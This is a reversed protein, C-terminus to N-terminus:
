LVSTRKSKCLTHSFSKVYLSGSVDVGHPSRIDTGRPRRPQSPPLFEMAAPKAVEVGYCIYMSLVWGSVALSLFNNANTVKSASSLRCYKEKFYFCLAM